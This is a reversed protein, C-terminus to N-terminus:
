DQSSGTKNPVIELQLERWMEWPGKEMLSWEKKPSNGKGVSISSAVAEISNRLFNPM